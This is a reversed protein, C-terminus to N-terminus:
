TRTCKISYACTDAKGMLRAHFGRGTEGHDQKSSLLDARRISIAMPIVALQKMTRLLVEETETEIAHSSKLIADGLDKDCCDFLNQVTSAATLDNGSKYLAWRKTFSNWTEESSGRSIKPRDMPPPKRRTQPNHEQDKHISFFTAAVEPAVDETEFGCTDYYPCRYRPM